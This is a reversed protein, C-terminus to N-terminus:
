KTTSIPMTFAIMGMGWHLLFIRLSYCCFQTCMCVCVCIVAYLNMSSILLLFHFTNAHAVPLLLIPLAIVCCHCCHVTAITMNTTTRVPLPTTALACRNMQSVTTKEYVCEIIIFICTAFILCDVWICGVFTHLSQFCRLYVFIM